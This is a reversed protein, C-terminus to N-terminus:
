SYILDLIAQVYPADGSAYKNPSNVYQFVVTKTSDVSSDADTCTAVIYHIDNTSGDDSVEATGTKCFIQIEDRVTLKLDSAVDLMGLKVEDTLNSPLTSLTKTEGLMDIDKWTVTDVTKQAVYPTNMQGTIIANAAMAIYLPSINNRQGFGARALDSNTSVSIQNNLTIFDCEISSSYSFHKDLSSTVKDAGLSYFLEAYYCNSSFRFAQRLTRHISNDYPSKNCDWNSIDLSPLYGPDDYEVFGYESAVVSSLMKFISGPRAPEICRNLCAHPQLNLETFDSNADYSPYSVLTRVMGNADLITVSGIINNQEMYSYIDAQLAANITLILSKGMLHGDDSRIATPNNERLTAEFVSDLALSSNYSDLVNGLCTQYGDTIKRLNGENYMLVVDNCDAVFGRYRWNSEVGVDHETSVVATKCTETHLVNTSVTSTFTTLTETITKNQSVETNINSKNPKSMAFSISIIMLATVVALCVMKKM